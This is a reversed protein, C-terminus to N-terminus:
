PTQSFQQKDRKPVKIGYGDSSGGRNESAEKGSLRSNKGQANLLRTEKGTPLSADM